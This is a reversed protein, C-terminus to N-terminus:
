QTPQEDPPSVYMTSVQYGGAASRCFAFTVTGGEFTEVPRTRPEPGSHDGAVWARRNARAEDMSGNVAELKWGSCFKHGNDGLVESIPLTIAEPRPGTSDLAARVDSREVGRAFAVAFADPDFIRSAVDGCRHPLERLTLGDIGAERRSQNLQAPDELNRVRRENMEETVWGEHRIHAHGHGQDLAVIVRQADSSCNHATALWPREAEHEDIYAAADAHSVDPLGARSPEFRKLVGGDSPEAAQDADAADADAPNAADQGVGGPDADWPGADAQSTDAKDADAASDQAAGAPSAVEQDADEQDTSEQAGDAHDAAAQNANAPAAEPQSSPAQDAQGEGSRRQNVIQRMTLAYEARPDPEARPYAEGTNDSADAPYRHAPLDSDDPEDRGGRLEAM